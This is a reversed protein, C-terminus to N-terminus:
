LEENGTIEFDRVNDTGLEYGTPAQTEVISYNGPELGSFEIMGQSNTELDELVINDNSDVVNFLAGDLPVNTESDVKQLEVHVLPDNEVIVEVNNEWHVDSHEVEVDNPDSDVIYGYKEPVNIEELKYNG